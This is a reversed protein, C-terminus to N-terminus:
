DDKTDRNDNPKSIKRSLSSDFMSPIMLNLHIAFFFPRPINGADWAASM